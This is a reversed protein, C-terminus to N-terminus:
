NKNAALVARGAEYLLDTYYQVTLGVLLVRPSLSTQAYIATQPPNRAGLKVSAAKGGTLELDLVTFPDALGFAQLEEPKPAASIGEAEQRETLNEILASILDAPAKAAQPKVIQWRKDQRECRVEKGDRRLTIATVEDAYVSLVRERALRAESVPRAKSELAVYYSGLLGFLVWFVLTSRWTM